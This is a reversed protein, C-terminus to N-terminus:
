GLLTRRTQQQRATLEILRCLLHPWVAHRPTRVRLLGQRRKVAPPHIRVRQVHSLNQNMGTLVAVPHRLARAKRSAHGL